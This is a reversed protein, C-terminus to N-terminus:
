DTLKAQLVLISRGPVDVLAGADYASEVAPDDGATSLALQWKGDYSEPPVTFQVSDPHGNFLLLFHDDLVEQGREDPATIARGNLFVMLARAYGDSWDHEDMLDGAPAYWEIDGQDSGGGRHADGDFFRRRRFTPHDNRLAIVQQTFHLLSHQDETFDWHIWSTENDQCYVNNNGSQTRGLEDGHALMPVGQSLLLTTIFNRQQRLRLTNIEPDDTPGEAGCNWSRNYSEGDQNDEGNDENHKENYSV